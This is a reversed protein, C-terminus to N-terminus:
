IGKTLKIYNHTIVRLCELKSIPNGIDYDLDFYDCLTKFRYNGIDLIGCKVLFPTIQMLDIGGSEIYNYLFYEGETHIKIFNNLFNLDFNLNHGVVTLKNHKTSNYKLINIFDRCKIEPNDYTRLEDITIKNIDLAQKSIESPRKGRRPRISLTDKDIIINNSDEMLYSLKIIDDNETNLGTTALTIYIFKM